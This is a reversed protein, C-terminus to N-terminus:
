CGYYNPQSACCLGASFGHIFAKSEFSFSVGGLYLSISHTCWRAVGYVQVTYLMYRWGYMCSRCFPFLKSTSHVPVYVSFGYLYQRNVREILEHGWKQGASAPKPSAVDSM